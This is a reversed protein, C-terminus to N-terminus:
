AALRAAKRAKKRATVTEVPPEAMGTVPNYNWSKVDARRRQWSEHEWEINRLFSRCALTPLPGSYREPQDGAPLLTCGPIVGFERTTVRSKKSKAM